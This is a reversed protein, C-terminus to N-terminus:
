AKADAEAAHTESTAVDGDVWELYAMEAGDGVRNGALVIRTYGGNRGVFKPAVNDFLERVIDVRRLTAIVQRRAALTDKRAVTVLKEALRRAAKAKPATTHIRKDKILGCVLASVMAKRHSSSRGFKKDLVSHRM